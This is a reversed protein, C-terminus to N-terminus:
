AVVGRLLRNLHGSHVFGLQGSVQAPPLGQALLERARAGLLRRRVAVPSSGLEQQCARQLQRVSVGLESAVADVGPLPLDGDLADAFRRAMRQSLRQPEAPLLGQTRGSGIQAMLARVLPEASALALAPALLADLMATTAGDLRLAGYRDAGRLLAADLYLEGHQQRQTDSLTRHAASAPLLLATSRVLRTRTPLDGDVWVSNLAGTQPWLLM